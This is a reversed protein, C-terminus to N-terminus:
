GSPVYSHKMPGGRAGHAGGTRKYVVGEFVIEEPLDGRGFRTVVGKETFLDVLQIPADRDEEDGFIHGPSRLQSVRGPSIGLLAGIDRVSLGRHSLSVM